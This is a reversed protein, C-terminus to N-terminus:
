LRKWAGCPGTARREQEVDGGFEGGAGAAGRDGVVGAVDDALDGADGVGAFGAEVVGVRGGGGADRDAEANGGFFDDAEGPGHGAFRLSCGVGDGGGGFRFFPRRMSAHRAPFSPDPQVPSVFGSGSLQSTLAGKISALLSLALLPHDYWAADM